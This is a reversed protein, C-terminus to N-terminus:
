PADVSFEQPNLRAQILQARIITARDKKVGAAAVAADFGEKAATILSEKMNEPFGALKEVLDSTAEKFSEESPININGYEELAALVFELDSLSVTIQIHTTSTKM